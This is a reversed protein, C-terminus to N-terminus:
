AKIIYWTSTSKPSISDYEAQTGTWFKLQGVGTDTNQDTISAHNHSAAAFASPASGQLTDADLGSGSGDVTKIKTLVDNATYTSSALKNGLATDVESKTYYSSLDVSGAGAVSGLGLIVVRYSNNAPASDFTVTTTNDTPRGVDVLVSDGTAAEFVDVAVDKTGFNHTLTFTTDTGNGITATFKSALAAAIQDYVYEAIAKSTALADDSTAGLGETSDEIVSDAFKDFTIAGDKLRLKTVGDVDVFTEITSSDVNILPVLGTGTGIFIERTDTAFLPEGIAASMPLDTKLGRKLLITQAM